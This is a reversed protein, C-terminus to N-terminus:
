GAPDGRSRMERLLRAGQTENLQAHFLLSFELQGCTAPTFRYLFCTIAEAKKISIWFFITIIEENEGPYRLLYIPLKM